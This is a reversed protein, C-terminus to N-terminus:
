QLVYGMEVTCEKQLPRKVTSHKMFRQALKVVGAPGPEEEGLEIVGNHAASLRPKLKTIDGMGPLSRRALTQLVAESSDDIGKKEPTPLQINEFLAVKKQKQPEEVTVPLSPESDQTESYHLTLDETHGAEIANGEEAHLASQTILEPGKVDVHQLESYPRHLDFSDEAMQSQESEASHNGNVILISPPSKTEGSAVHVDADSDQACIIANTGHKDVGTHSDPTTMESNDANIDIETTKSCVAICIESDCINM